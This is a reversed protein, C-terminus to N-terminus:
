PTATVPPIEKVEKESTSAEVEKGHCFFLRAERSGRNAICYQNGRPVLFQSGSSVVFQTRHVQVEVEGSMVMFIMASRKSNSNRKKSGKPFALIGSAIFTGESFVKQFKFSGGTSRLDLMDPTSIIQQEEEQGTSFNIVPINPQVMAQARKERKVRAARARVKQRDLDEEDSDVRIIEKVVPVPYFGSERRGVVVREGAWFKLPSIKMRRSRRCGNEDKGDEELVPPEPKQVTAHPKARHAASKKTVAGKPIVKAKTRRATRSPAALLPQEEESDSAKIDSQTDPKRLTRQKKTAVKPSRAEAQSAVPESHDRETESRESDSEAHSSAEGSHIPAEELTGDDDRLQEEEDASQISDAGTKDKQQLNATKSPTSHPANEVEFAHSGSATDEDDSGDEAIPHAKNKHERGSAHQSDSTVDQQSKQEVSGSQADQLREAITKIHASVEPVVRHRARRAQSVSPSESEEALSPSANWIVTSPEPGDTDALNNMLDVPTNSTTETDNASSHKPHSRRKTATSRKNPSQDVTEAELDSGEHTKRKRSGPSKLAAEADSHQSSQGDVGTVTFVMEKGTLDMSHTSAADDLEDPYDYATQTLPHIKKQATSPREAENSKALPSDAPSITVSGSKPTKRSSMPAAFLLDRSPSIVAKSSDELASSKSIQSFKVPTTPVSKHNLPFSSPAMSQRPMRSAANPIPVPTQPSIGPTSLASVRPAQQPTVIKGPAAEIDETLEDSDDSFWLDMNEPMGNADYTADKPARAGTRRGVEGVDFYKVPRGRIQEAAEPSNEKNDTQLAPEDAGAM